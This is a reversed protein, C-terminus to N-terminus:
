ASPGGGSIVQIEITDDDSDGDGVPMYANNYWVYTMAENTAVYIKGPLGAEPFEEKTDKVVTASDQLDKVDAKVQDLDGKLGAVQEALGPLSSIGGLRHWNEAIATDPVAKLGTVKSDHLFYVGNLDPNPDMWVAVIMGNYAIPAGDTTYWNSTTTLDSYYQVLSRADLPKRTKVEYSTSRNSDGLIRAM